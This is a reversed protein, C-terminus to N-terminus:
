QATQMSTGENSSTTSVLFAFCTLINCASEKLDTHTRNSSAAMRCPGVMQHLRCWTSLSRKHFAEGVCGVSNVCGMRHWLKTQTWFSCTTQAFLLLQKCMLSKFYMRYARAQRRACLRCCPLSSSQKYAAQSLSRFCRLFSTFASNLYSVCISQLSTM